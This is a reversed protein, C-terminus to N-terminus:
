HGQHEVEESVENYKSRRCPQYMENSIIQFLFICLEILKSLMSTQFYIPIFHFWPFYFRTIICKQSYNKEGPVNSEDRPRKVHSIKSTPVGNPMGPAVYSTLSDKSKQSFSNFSSTLVLFWLSKKQLSILRTNVKLHNYHEVWKSKTLNSLAFRRLTKCDETNVGSLSIDFVGEVLLQQFSSVNATFCASDFLSKLSYFACFLKTLFCDCYWYNIM